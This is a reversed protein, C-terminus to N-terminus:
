SKICMYIYTYKFDTLIKSLFVKNSVTEHERSCDIELYKIAKTKGMSCETWVKRKQVYM